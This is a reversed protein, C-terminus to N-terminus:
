PADCAAGSHPVAHTESTERQGAKPDCSSTTRQVHKPDCSGTAVAEQKTNTPRRQLVQDALQTTGGCLYLVALRLSAALLEAIPSAM